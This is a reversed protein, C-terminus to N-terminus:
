TSGMKLSYFLCIMKAGVYMGTYEQQIQSAAM